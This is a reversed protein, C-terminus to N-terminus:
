YTSRTDSFHPFLVNLTQYELPFTKWYSLIEKWRTKMILSIQSLNFDCQLSRSNPMHIGIKPATRIRFLIHQCIHQTLLFHCIKLYWCSSIHTYIGFRLSPQLVWHFLHRKCMVSWAPFLIWSKHYGVWSHIKVSECRLIHYSCLYSSCYHRPNITPEAGEQVTVKSM